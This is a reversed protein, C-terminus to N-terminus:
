GSDIKAFMGIGNQLNKLGDDIKQQSNNEVNPNVLRLM